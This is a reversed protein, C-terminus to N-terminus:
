HGGLRQLKARGVFVGPISRSADPIDSASAEAANKGAARIFMRTRYRLFVVIIRVFCFNQTNGRV